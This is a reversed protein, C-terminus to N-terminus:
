FSGRRRFVSAFTRGAHKTANIHRLTVFNWLMNVTSNVETVSMQSWLQEDREPLVLPQKKLTEIFRRIKKRQDLRLQRDVNRQELETQAREYRTVLEERRKNYEEESEAQSAHQKILAASMDSVFKMEEHLEHIRADLETFDALTEYMRNCDSLLQERDAMMSNYAKLFLQKIADENSDFTWINEKEFYCEVGNEKLKRITTLSDVTNRAFRSVSKTIILDIERASKICYFSSGRQVRGWRTITHSSEFPNAKEILSETLTSINKHVPQCSSIFYIIM